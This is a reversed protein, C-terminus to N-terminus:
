QNNANLKLCCSHKFLLFSNSPCPTYTPLHSPPPPPSLILFSSSKSPIRLLKKHNCNQRAQYSTLQVLCFRPPSFPTGSASSSPAALVHNQARQYLPMDLLLAIGTWTMMISAFHSILPIQESFRTSSLWSCRVNNQNPLGGYNRELVRQPRAHKSAPERM